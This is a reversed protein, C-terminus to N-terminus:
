GIEFWNDKDVKVIPIGLIKDWENSFGVNLRLNLMEEKGLYIYKIKRNKLRETRIKEIMELSKMRYDKLSERFLDVMGKDGHNCIFVKDGNEDTFTIEGLRGFTFEVKDIKMNTETNM